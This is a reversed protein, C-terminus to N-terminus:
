RSREKNWVAGTIEVGIESLRRKTDLLRRQDERGAELVLLVGDLHSAFEQWPGPEAAPPLDFLVLDHHRTLEGLVHQAVEPPVLGNGSGSALLQLHEDATTQLCDDLDAHSELFDLFGPSKRRGRLRRTAERGVTDLDVVLVTTGESAARYALNLTVTTAGAGRQISTVGVSKRQAQQQRGCLTHLLTGYQQALPHAAVRKALPSPSTSEVTATPQLM